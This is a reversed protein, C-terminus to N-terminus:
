VTKLSEVYILEYETKARAFLKYTYFTDEIQYPGVFHFQLPTLDPFCAPRSVQEGRGSWNNPRQNKLYKTAM